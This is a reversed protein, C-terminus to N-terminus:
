VVVFESSTLALNIGILAIEVSATSGNGDADYYLAGSTKNYIIHDNSDIATTGFIFQDAALVGTTTLATFVANELQITDDAVSYDTITDIGSLSNFLFIDKGTGGTLTDSGSGGILKDNGGNGILINKGNNGTLTNNLDNGTANIAANSKLTLNELNAGLTWSVYSQVTDTGEGSAETVTDLTSDVIYTDNGAGGALKDNGAGGDLTDNGLGGTITDNGLGSKLSNSAENGIITDDGSGGIAKEIVVNYAIAVNNSASSLPGTPSTQKVGVSSFQGANLNIIQSLTQNSLDFTDTGGADWITKLEGVTNSVTYTDNGTHSTMNAGYLFQMAAIDYLMPTSPRVVQYSYSGGGLSKYVYGAGTYNTYSMISYQTTNEATSLVASNGTVTEFPHKLGLAHGLEHILTHFEQSGAVSFDSYNPTIWVDGAQAAPPTPFYAWGGAGQNKVENSFAVRIQGQSTANDAVQTFTLNAVDSWKSLATKFSAQQSANFGSWGSSVEKGYNSIFTSGTTPFSYTITAATGTTGWQYTSLLANITPNTSLM